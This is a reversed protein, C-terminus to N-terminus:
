IWLIVKAQNHFIRHYHNLFKVGYEFCTEGNRTSLFIDGDMINKIWILNDDEINDLGNYRYQRM